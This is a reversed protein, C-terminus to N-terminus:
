ERKRWGLRLKLWFTYRGYWRVASYCLVTKILSSRYALAVYYFVADAYVRKSYNREVYAEDCVFDHALFAILLPMSFPHVMLVSWAWFPISGGDSEFGEHIGLKGGGPLDVTIEELLRAKNNPLLIVKVDM